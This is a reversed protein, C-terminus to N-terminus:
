YFDPYEGVEKISVHNLLNAARNQITTRVQTVACLVEDYTLDSELIDEMLKDKLNQKKALNCDRETAPHEKLNEEGREIQM